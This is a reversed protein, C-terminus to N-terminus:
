PQSPVEFWVVKGHATDTVGWASALADVLFMGRGSEEDTDARRVRPRGREDDGVEVRVIADDADCGVRVQGTGHRLANTVVESTLLVAHEACEPGTSARTCCDAVAKRAARPGDGATLILTQVHGIHGFRSSVM